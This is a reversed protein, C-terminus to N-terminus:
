NVLKPVVLSFVKISADFLTGDTARMEYHGQMSGLPTELIVGSTYEFSAGTALFPQQGIVGPGHVETKKGNGDTILWYRNLLQVQQSGKNSITIHYAFAFKGEDPSQDPLYRSKVEVTVYHENDSM